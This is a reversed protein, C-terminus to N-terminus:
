QATLSNPTLKFFVCENGYRGIERNKWITNFSCGPLSTLLDIRVPEYGLQIVRNRRTFDEESLDVEEFGFERLADLVKRANDGSSEILIDMDKTYRPRVHYAVAYAGVICYRVNNSILLQLFKEYDKEVREM